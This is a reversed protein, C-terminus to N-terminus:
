LCLGLRCLDEVGAIQRVALALLQKRIRQRECTPREFNHSIAGRAFNVSDMVGPHWCRLNQLM